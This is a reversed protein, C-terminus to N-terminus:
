SLSLQNPQLHSTGPIEGKPPGPYSNHGPDRGKQLSPQAWDFGVISSM